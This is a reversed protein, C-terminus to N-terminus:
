KMIINWYDDGSIELPSVNCNFSSKYHNIYTELPVVSGRFTTQSEVKERNGELFPNMEPRSESLPTGEHIQMSIIGDARPFLLEAILTRCTYKVSLFLICLYFLSLRIPLVLSSLFSPLAPFPSSLLSSLPAFRHWM